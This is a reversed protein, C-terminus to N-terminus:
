SSVLTNARNNKIITTLIIPSTGDLNGKSDITNSNNTIFINKNGNIATSYHGVPYLENDIYTNDFNSSTATFNYFINSSTVVTNLSQNPIFNNIYKNNKLKLITFNNFNGYLDFSSYKGNTIFSSFRLNINDNSIYETKINDNVIKNSSSVSVIKTNLREFNISYLSGSPNFEIINLNNSVIKKNEYKNREIINPEIVVGTLLRSRAPTLKNVSNFFSSDFYNKFLTIFEQYLVVEGLNKENYSARLDELIKYSNKYLNEPKGIADMLNYNGLFNIIDNNRDEYPSIYVGVINSNNSVLIDSTSSENPMLRSLINQEVKNIKNNKLQNPGFGNLEINQILNIESFQYPYTSINNVYSCSILSYANNKFKFVSGTAYITNDYYKNYNYITSQTAIALNEPYDFSYRFYLNKYTNNIDSDDYADFNKCHNIFNSESIRTNWLNIKDINGYFTNNNYNGFFIYNSSTFYPLYTNALVKKTTSQHIVRDENVNNIILTYIHPLGSNDFDILNYPSEEWKILVNYINGDFLPLSDSTIVSDNLKFKLKGYVDELDKCIYIRLLDDKYALDIEDNWNYLKSPDIRFKFEITKTNESYPLRIFETSGSFKTFYYKKNFNYSNKDYNSLNNGGYEKINLLNSPIGYINALMRISTETGKTKYIIPLNSLIRGWISNMKDLYSLQLSSSNETNNLYYQNLYINEISSVPSWGFNELMVNSIYSIMSGSISNNYQTIPFNQIYLYINDFFHGVMSLFILYDSNEDNTNIYEPSNNLLSDKNNFDYNIGSNLYEDYASGSILYQNKYLYSEYGDFSQYIETIKENTKEYDYSYSASIQYKLVASSSIISNQIDYLNAALLNLQSLKNKFLKIRLQASSFLIFNSFDSYDTNIEKLKKNFEVKNQLVNKNLENKSFYNLNKTNNTNLIKPNIKFNPGSIKFQKKVIPYNLIVKQILPTNAINSIWCFDRVSLNTPLYDLLKVVLVIKNNSDLYHSHNIISFFLNNGFNLANKLYDFYKSKFNNCINNTIKLLFNEYFILNIFKNVDDVNSLNKYNYNLYYLNNKSSTQIIYQFKLKLGADDIILNNYTYLWNTIFKKIGDYKRNVSYNSNNDNQNINLYFGDYLKSFFNILEDDNYLGFTKKVNEVIQPNDEYVKKYTEGLNFTELENLFQSILDYILYKKTAFSDYYLNILVNEDDNKDLKFNPVLEIEKRDVSISKIILKYKQNGAINRLLNYSIVNSGSLIGVNNLDQVTNLLIKRQKSIVYSSNFKKYNYSLENNDVDKYTGNIISYTDTKDLIKWISQNGSIDFISFEIVDQNSKGFYLDTSNGLSFVNLDNENYFSGTNLSNENSSITLYPYSM